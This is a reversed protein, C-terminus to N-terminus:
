TLPEVTPSTTRLQRMVEEIEAEEHSASWGLEDGAIRAAAVVTEAAPEPPAGSGIRRLVVDSLRVAMEERVARRVRADLGPGGAGEGDDVRTQATRCRDAVVGLAAVIRDVV